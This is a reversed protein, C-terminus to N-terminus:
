SGNIQPTPVQTLVSPPYLQMQGSPYTRRGPPLLDLFLSETEKTDSQILKSVKCLFADVHALLKAVHVEGVVSASTGHHLRL